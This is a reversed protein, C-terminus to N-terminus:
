ALINCFNEDKRRLYDWIVWEYDCEEPSVEILGRQYLDYMFKKLEKEM